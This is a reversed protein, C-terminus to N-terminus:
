QSLQSGQAQTQVLMLALMMGAVTHRDVSELTAPHWSRHHRPRAVLTTSQAISAIAPTAPAVSVTYFRAPIFVMLTFAAALMLILCSCTNRLFTPM